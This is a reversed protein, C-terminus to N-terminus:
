SVIRLKPQKTCTPCAVLSGGICPVFAFGDRCHRYITIEVDTAPDAQRMAKALENAAVRASSKSLDNYRDFFFEATRKGQRVKLYNNSNM